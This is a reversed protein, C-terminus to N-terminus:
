HSVFTSALVAGGLSVLALGLALLLATRFERMRHSSSKQVTEEAAIRIYDGYVLTQERCARALAYPRTAANQHPGPRTNRVGVSKILGFTYMDLHRQEFRYLLYAQLERWSDVETRYREKPFRQFYEAALKRAATRERTFKQRVFPDQPM